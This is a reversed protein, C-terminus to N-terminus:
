PPFGLAFITGARIHLAFNAVIMRDQKVQLSKATIYPIKGEESVGNSWDQAEAFCFRRETDEQQGMAPSAMLLPLQTLPLSTITTLPTLPLFPLLPTLPLFLPSFSPSTTTYDFSLM